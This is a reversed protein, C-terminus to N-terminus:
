MLPTTIGGFAKILQVKVGTLELDIGPFIGASVHNEHFDPHYPSLPRCGERLKYAAVNELPWVDFVPLKSSIGSILTNVEKVGLPLRRKALVWSNRPHMSREILSALHVSFAEDEILLGCETNLNFSRPDFNHSGIFAVRRDVVLSKAHVCFRPGELDLHIVDSDKEWNPGSYTEPQELLLNYRPVMEYIDAPVPRAIHIELKLEQIQMRRQKFAIGSVAAHDASGLSNTSVRIRVNPNKKKIDKALRASRKGLIPYPTEILLESQTEHLLEMLPAFPSQSWHHSTRKVQGPGDSFFRINRIFWSKLVPRASSLETLDALKDLEEFIQSVPNALYDPMSANGSLIASKLDDMRSAEISEPDDWFDKFYSQIEGTVPGSVLIDRDRFCLEPDRDYYANQYNRGGVIAATGDVLFVKNHMRRNLTTFRSFTNQTVIWPSNIAKNALPRFLRVEFNSHATVIAAYEAADIKPSVFQDILLRVKVGRRAAELLEKFVWLGTDDFVYIFTQIDISKRAARILHIRALLADDGRELLIAEHTPSAAARSLFGSEIPKNGSLSEDRLVSPGPGPEYSQVIDPPLFCGSIVLLTLVGASCLLM